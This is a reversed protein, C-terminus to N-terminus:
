ELTGMGFLERRYKPFREAILPIVIDPRGTGCVFRRQKVFVLVDNETKQIEVFLNGEAFDRELGATSISVVRGDALYMSNTSISTVRVPNTLPQNEQPALYRFGIGPTLLLILVIIAGCLVIRVVIEFTRKM